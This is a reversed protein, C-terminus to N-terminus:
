ITSVEAMFQEEVRKDSSSNLIKVALQVGNPFKGKYVVGFGGSGLRTAYNRTFNALQQPSFRIPKERAMDNLFREMTAMGLQSDPIVPSASPISSVLSYGDVHKIADGTKSLYTIIAYVTAVFAIAGVISTIIAAATVWQFSSNFNNIIDDGPTNTTGGSGTSIFSM